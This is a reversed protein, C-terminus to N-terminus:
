ETLRIIAEAYLKATLVLQEVEIYENKEHALEEQDPMLPGFCVCNPIARAYSGGGVLIPESTKDGTYEQYVDMLTKVLPSNKSFCVPAHHEIENYEFCSGSLGSLIMSKVAEYKASIPYRVSIGMNIQNNSTHIEGVNFILMGSDEDSINCHMQSGNYDLGILRDYNQLFQGPKINQECLMQVLAAIMHSIANVGKEPSQCHSAVGKTCLAQVTEPGHSKEECISINFTKAHEKIWENIFSKRENKAALKVTCLDPVGNRAAGGNISLIRIDDSSHDPDLPATLDFDLIGKEAYIVPFYGDPTFAITPIEEHAKYYEIDDWINEENTGLIMRIRKKPVFGSEKLAKMSYLCSIAPGKDDITGRGYMKGNAIKAEYPPHDWGNGEPVVDMHALIGLMEESEGFEIYGAYGDVDKVRFGMERGKELMWQLMQYPGPGFPMGPKAEDLVSRIQVASQVDQILENRHRDIYEQYM